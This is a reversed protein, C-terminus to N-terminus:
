QSLHSAHLPYVKTHPSHLHVFVLGLTKALGRPHAWSSLWPMSQVHRLGLTPKHNCISRVLPELDSRLACVSRAVPTRQGVLNQNLEASCSM